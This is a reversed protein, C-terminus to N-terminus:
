GHETALRRALTTSITSHSVHIHGNKLAGLIGNKGFVVEEVAHDDALMTMVVEADRCVDAPSDAVRAGDTALAQAKERSRNYVTVEHGARLLNRAMPSGMHGLGIFAVKMYLPYGIALSSIGAINISRRLKRPATANVAAHEVLRVCTLVGTVGDAARWNARTFTAGSRTIRVTTPSRGYRGEPNTTRLSDISSFVIM